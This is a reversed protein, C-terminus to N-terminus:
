VRNTEVNNTGEYVIFYTRDREKKLHM